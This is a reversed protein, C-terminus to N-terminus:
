ISFIQLVELLYLRRAVTIVQRTFHKCVQRHKTDGKAWHLVTNFLKETYDQLPCNSNSSCCSFGLGIVSVLFIAPCGLFYSWPFNAMATVTVNPVRHPQLTPKLTLDECEWLPLVHPPDQRCSSLAQHLMWSDARDCSPFSLCPLLALAGACVDEGKWLQGLM